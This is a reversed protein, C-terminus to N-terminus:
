KPKNKIKDVQQNTILGKILFPNLSILIVKIEKQFNIVRETEKGIAIIKILLIEGM